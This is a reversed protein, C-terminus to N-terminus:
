IQVLILNRIQYKKRFGEDMLDLYAKETVSSHELIKSLIHIDSPALLFRRAFNNRLGHPTITKDIKARKM